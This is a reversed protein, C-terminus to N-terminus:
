LTDGRVVPRLERRYFVVREPQLTPRKREITKMEFHIEWPTRGFHGGVSTDEWIAHAFASHSM